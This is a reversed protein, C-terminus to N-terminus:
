TVYVIFALHILVVCNDLMRLFASGLATSALCRRSKGYVDEAPRLGAAKSVRTVCRVRLDGQDGGQQARIGVSTVGQFHLGM